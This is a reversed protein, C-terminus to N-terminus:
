SQDGDGSGSAVGIDVDAVAAGVGSSTDLAGSAVTSIVFVGMGVIAAIFASNFSTLQQSIMIFVM